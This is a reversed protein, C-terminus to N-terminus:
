DCLNHCSQQGVVGILFGSERSVGVGFLIVYDSATFTDYKRPKAHILVYFLHSDLVISKLAEHCGLSSYRAVIGIPDRPVEDTDDEDRKERAFLFQKTDDTHVEDNKTHPHYGPFPVHSADLSNIHESEFCSARLTNLVERASPLATWPREPFTMFPHIKNSGGGYFVYVEPFNTLFRRDPAEMAEYGSYLPKLKEHDGPFGAVGFRSVLPEDLPYDEFSDGPERSPRGFELTTENGHMRQGLLINM